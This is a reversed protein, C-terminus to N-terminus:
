DATNALITPSNSGAIANKTREPDRWERGLTLLVTHFQRFMAVTAPDLEEMPGAVEMVFNLARYRDVPDRLVEALTTVAQDGCFEVILSQEHIIRNRMDATMSNFPPRDHLLQDSRVLRDRRVSGRARALLVLMRVIGEAYGGISAKKMVEEIKFTAGADHPRFLPQASAGLYKMWPTAYIAHFTLEIGADRIDRYYDLCQEICDGYLRELLRFPNDGGCAARETRVTDALVGCASFLPNAHTFFYQQLRM